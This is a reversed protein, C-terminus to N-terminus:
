SQREPAGAEIYWTHKEDVTARVARGHRDRAPQFRYRQEVLRCTLADVAPLGSKMAVQCNAVRGNPNVTFSVAVVAKMGRGKLEEPLDSFSLHGRIHRPRVTAGAGDEGFDEGGRGTGHGIVGAGEDLGPQPAAGSFNVDAVAAQTAIVFPPPALLPEVSPAAVRIAQNRINRPSVAKRPASSQSRAPAQKPQPQSPPSRGLEVSVLAFPEPHESSVRLGGILMAAILVVVSAAALGSRARRQTPAYM